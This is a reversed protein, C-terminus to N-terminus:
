TRTSTSDPIDRHDSQTDRDPDETGPDEPALEETAPDDPALEETAPADRDTVAPPSTSERTALTQSQRAIQAAVADRMPTLADLEGADEVPELREELRKTVERLANLQYFAATGLLQHVADRLVDTAGDNWAQELEDLQKPLEERLLAALEPDESLRRPAPAATAANTHLLRRLVRALAADDAAKEMVADAGALLWRQRLEPAVSASLGIIRLPTDTDITRLERTTDVGDRGPMQHDILVVDPPTDRAAALGEDGSAVELVQAGMDSLRRAILRRNTVNNDIILCRINALAQAAGRSDGQGHALAAHLTRYLTERDTTKPLSATAGADNLAVLRRHDVSRILAVTPVGCRRATNLMDRVWTADSEAETLGVLVLDPAPSARQLSAILAEGHDFEQVDTRWYELCHRLALRATSQPEFLWIDRDALGSWVVPDAPRRSQVGIQVDIEFTTGVGETSEFRIQGHMLKVLQRVISLGLGTGPRQQADNSEVRNFAHFLRQQQAMPIGIGTDTIQLGLTVSTDDAERTMVRLVVEGSETFKIANSLLNTIIQQLRAPDGRLRRPVDHYVIHVLELQKDFALPALLAVTDEVTDLLNFAVENLTLRGAEIRGWELWDNILSLLSQSSRKIQNLSEAIQPDPRERLVLDAHGLIATVPTRLEHSLGSLLSQRSDALTTASDREHEIERIRRRAAALDGHLKDTARVVHNRLHDRSYRLREGLLRVSGALEALAAPTSTLTPTVEGRVLDRLAANIRRLPRNMRRTAIWIFALMALGIGTCLLIMRTFRERFAVDAFPAALQLDLLFPQQPQPQPETDLVQRLMDGPQDAGLVHALWGVVGGADADPSAQWSGLPTERADLVTISRWHGTKRATDILAQPPATADAFAAVIAGAEAQASRYEIIQARLLATSLALWAFATPVAMALLGFRKPTTGEM